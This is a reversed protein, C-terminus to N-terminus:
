IRDCLRATDYCSTRAGPDISCCEQDDTNLKEGVNHTRNEEMLEAGSHIAKDNIAVVVDGAQLGAKDAPGDEIM